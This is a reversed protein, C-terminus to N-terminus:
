KFSGCGVRELRFYRKSRFTWNGIGWEERGQGARRPRRMAGFAHPWGSTLDFHFIRKNPFASESRKPIKVSIPSRM